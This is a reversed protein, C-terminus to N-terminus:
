IRNEILGYKTLLLLKEEEYNLIKIKKGSSDNKYNEFKNQIFPLNSLPKFGNKVVKGLRTKGRFSPIKQYSKNFNYYYDIVEKTSGKNQPRVEFKLENFNIKQGTLTIMSRIIEKFNQKYDEYAIVHVNEQGFTNSLSEVIKTWRNPSLNNKNQLYEEFTCSLSLGNKILYKYSSHLFEYYDRISYIPIVDHNHLIEKYIEILKEANSYIDSHRQTIMNGLAGEYSIIACEAGNIDSEIRNNIYKMSYKIDFHKENIKRALMIAEKRLKPLEHFRFYKIRYKSFLNNNLQLNKQLHTSATKHAGFHFIIKM